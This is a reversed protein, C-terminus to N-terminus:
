MKDIDQQGDNLLCAARANKYKTDDTKIQQGGLHDSGDIKGEVERHTVKATSDRTPLLRFIHICISICRLLCKWPLQLLIGSNSGVPKQRGLCLM